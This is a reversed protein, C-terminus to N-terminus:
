TSFYARYSMKLSKVDLEPFFMCITGCYIAKNLTFNCKQCFGQNWVTSLCIILKLYRSLQLEFLFM